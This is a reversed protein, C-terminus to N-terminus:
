MSKKPNVFSKWAIKVETYIMNNKMDKFPLITPMLFGSPIHEGVKTTSSKEFNYKYGDIVKILSKLYAYIISPTKDIKWYKNFELIKTDESPMVVGCFDTNKCKKHLEITSKTRFSHLCNLYFFIVMM